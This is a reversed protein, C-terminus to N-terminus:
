SLSPNKTRTCSTLKSIATKSKALCSSWSRKTFPGEQELKTKHQARQTAIQNLQAREEDLQKSLRELEALQTKLREGVGQQAKAIRQYYALDRATQNPDQQRFM